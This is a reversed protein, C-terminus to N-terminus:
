PRVINQIKQYININFKYKKHLYIYILNLIYHEMVFFFTNLVIYETNFCIKTFYYTFNFFYFKFFYIPIYINQIFVIFFMTLIINQCIRYYRYLKSNLLNLNFKELETEDLEQITLTSEENLDQISEKLIGIERKNKATITLFFDILYYFNYLVEKKDDSYYMNFRNFLTKWQLENYKDLKEKFNDISLNKNDFIDNMISNYKDKIKDNNIKKVIHKAGLDFMGMKTNIEMQRLMEEKSVKDAMNFYLHINIM